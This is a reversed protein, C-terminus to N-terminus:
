MRGNEGEGKKELAEILKKLCEEGCDEGKGRRAILSEAVDAPTISSENLLVKIKGFLEHHEIGLYNRALIRFAEFGCYTMEVHKDM